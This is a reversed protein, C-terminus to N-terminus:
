YIEYRNKGSEKVRYMASDANRMLNKLNDGNGAAFAIGISATIHTEINEVLFPQGLAESIKKAVKEADDDNQIDSLILTFEDGGLRAVTDSARVCNQIRLAVEQLVCDGCHHGWRDNVTKFGDLDLFLVALREKKRKAQNLAHTLRDEFLYRNPLGTLLDRQAQYELRRSMAHQEIAIRALRIAIELVKGLRDEFTANASQFEEIQKAGDASLDSWLILVGLAGQNGFIPQLWCRKVAGLASLLVDQAFDDNAQRLSAESDQDNDIPLQLTNPHIIAHQLLTSEELELNNLAAHRHGTAVRWGSQTTADAVPFQENRTHLSGRLESKPTESVIFACSVGVLQGEVLKELSALSQEFPAGTAILELVRNRDYDLHEERRRQTVDRDIGL